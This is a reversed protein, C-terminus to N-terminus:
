PRARGPARTEPEDTAGEADAEQDVIVVQDANAVATSYDANNNIAIAENIPMAFNDVGEINLRLISMAERDPLESANEEALEQDSLEDTPQLASEDQSV